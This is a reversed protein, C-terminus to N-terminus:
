VSNSLDINMSFAEKASFISYTAGSDVFAWLEFWQEGNKLQLPITPIFIEKYPTYSFELTRM